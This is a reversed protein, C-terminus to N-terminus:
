RAPVLPGFHSAWRRWPLDLYFGAHAHVWLVAVVRAPLRDAIWPLLLAPLFPILAFPIAITRVTASLDSGSPVADGLLRTIVTYAVAYALLMGASRIVAFTAVVRDGGALARGLWQGLALVVIPGLVVFGAKDASLMGFGWVIPLGFALVIAAGLLGFRFPAGLPSRADRAPASLPSGDLVSGSSLFAHAKYASHAILHLVAASYAGLGCQMMMFGMQSVTSWALGRKISPQTAATLLGLSATLSGIGALLAAATPSLSILPALRIVLFGGANIVGAHMLASVPTPTDLTDPLWSHFPFQASKTMAGIALLIAIPEISGAAEPNRVAAFLEDFRLTGFLDWAILTAAILAVDGLRSTLFKIRAVVLAEPRDHRFTLLRHLGLSTAIWAILLTPLDGAVVMLEVAGLTFAMRGLFTGQRPDGDLYRISFRLVVTGLLGILGAVLGTLPDLHLAGVPIASLIAVTKPEAGVSIAVAISLLWGAAAVATVFRGYRLPLRNTITAPAMAATILAIGPVWALAALADTM